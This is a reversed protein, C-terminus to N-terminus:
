GVDVTTVQKGLEEDGVTTVDLASRTIDSRLAECDGGDVQKAKQFAGLVEQPTVHSIKSADSSVSELDDFDVRIADSNQSSLSATNM